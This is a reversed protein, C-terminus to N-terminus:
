TVVFQKKRNFVLMIKILFMAVLNLLKRLKLLRTVSTYLNINFIWTLTQKLHKQVHSSIRIYFSHFCHSYINCSKLLVNKDCQSLMWRFELSINMSYSGEYGTLKVFGKENKFTVPVTFYDIPCGRVVGGIDEPLSNDCNWWCKYRKVSKVVPLRVPTM